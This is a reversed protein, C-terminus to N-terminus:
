REVRRARQGQGGADSGEFAVDPGVDVAAGGGYLDSVFCRKDQEDVALFPALQLVQAVGQDKVRV